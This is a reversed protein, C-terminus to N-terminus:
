AAEWPDCVPCTAFGQERAESVRKFYLRDPEPIRGAWGCSRAHFLRSGRQALYPEGPAEASGEGDATPETTDSVPAAATDSVTDSVTPEPPAAPIPDPENIHLNTEVTSRFEDTARRFERMARGLARGLEPLRRPGFVLLAVALILVLEQFGIDFM